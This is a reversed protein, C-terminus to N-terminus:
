RSRRKRPKEDAPWLLYVVGAVALLPLASLLLVAGLADAALEGAISADSV